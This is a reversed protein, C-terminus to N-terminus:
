GNLVHSNFCLFNYQYNECSPARTYRWCWSIACWCVVITRSHILTTFLTWGQRHEVLPICRLDLTTTSDPFTSEKADPNAYMTTGTCLYPPPLCFFVEFVVSQRNFLSNFFSARSAAEWNFPKCGSRSLLTLTRVICCLSCFSKPNGDRVAALFGRMFSIIFSCLSANALFCACQVGVCHLFTINESSLVNWTNLIPEILTRRIDEAM